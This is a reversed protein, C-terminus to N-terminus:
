KGVVIVVIIIKQNKNLRGIKKSNIQTLECRWLDSAGLWFCQFFQLSYMKM